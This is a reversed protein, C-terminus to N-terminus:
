MRFDENSSAGPPSYAAVGKSLPFKPVTNWISGVQEFRKVWLFNFKSKADTISLKQLAAADGTRLSNSGTDAM